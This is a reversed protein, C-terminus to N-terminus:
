QAAKAMGRDTWEPPLGLKGGVVAKVGPSRGYSECAVYKPAGGMTSKVKQWSPLDVDIGKKARPDEGEVLVKGFDEGFSKALDYADGVNSVKPSTLMTAGKGWVMAAVQQGSPDVAEAEISLNGLGFPLRTTPIPVGLDVFNMGIMAAASAGAAANNTKKIHTVTAVVTLDASENPAVVKFRDSLTICLARDVANAVLARQKESIETGATPLFATPLITVTEAALVKEKTVNLRSKTILGNSPTMADYSSLGAGEVLPSSACAPLFGILALVAFLASGPPVRAAEARGRLNRRASSPKECPANNQRRGQHRFPVPEDAKLRGLWALTRM